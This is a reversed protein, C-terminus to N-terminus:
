NLSYAKLSSRLVHSLLFAEINCAQCFLDLHDNPLGLLQVKVCYRHRNKDKFRWSRRIPLEEKACKDTGDTRKQILWFDFVSFPDSNDNIVMLRNFLSLQNKFVFILNPSFEWVLQAIRLVISM